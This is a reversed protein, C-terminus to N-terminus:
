WAHPRRVVSWSDNWAHRARHESAVAVSYAPGPQSISSSSTNIQWPMSVISGGFAEYKLRQQLGNCTGTRSTWARSGNGFPEHGGQFTCRLLTGGATIDYNWPGGSHNPGAVAASPLLLVAIMTLSIALRRRMTIRM